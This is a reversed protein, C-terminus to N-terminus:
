EAQEEKEIPKAASEASDAARLCVDLLRHYAPRMTFRGASDVDAMGLRELQRITAALHEPETIGIQGLIRRHADGALHPLDAVAQASSFVSSAIDRGADAAADVWVATFVVLRTISDNGKYDDDASTAYVFGRPDRHLTLELQQFFARYDEFLPGNLDDFEPDGFCWHRGAKIGRFVEAIRPLPQQASESM